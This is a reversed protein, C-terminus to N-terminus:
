PLPAPLLPVAIDHFDIWGAYTKIGEPISVQIAKPLEQKSALACEALHQEGQTYHRRFPLPVGDPNSITFKGAELIEKDSNTLGGKRVFACSLRAGAGSLDPDNWLFTLGGPLPHVGPKAADPIELMGMRDFAQLCYYVRVNAIRGPFGGSQLPADENFTIRTESKVTLAHRAHRPAWPPPQSNTTWGTRALDLGSDAMCEQLQCGHNIMPFRPEVMVEGYLMFTSEDSSGAHAGYRVISETKVSVNMIRARIPGNIEFKEPPAPLERSGATYHLEPYNERLNNSRCLETVAQWYPVGKWDVSGTPPADRRQGGYQRFSLTNGTQRSIEAIIEPLPRDQMALTVTSARLMNLPITNTLPEPKPLPPISAAPPAPQASAYASKLPPLLLDHYEFPYEQPQPPAEDPLIVAVPEVGQLWKFNILLEPPQGAKSSASCNVYALKRGDATIMEATRLRRNVLSLDPFSSSALVVTFGKQAVSDLRAFTFEKGGYVLSAGTKRLDVRVPETPRTILLILKGKITQIETARPDPFRSRLNFLESFGRKSEALYAQHKGFTQGAGTSALLDKGMNDRFESLEMSAGAVLLNTDGKVAILLVAQANSKATPMGNDMPQTAERTIMYQVPEIRVSSAAPTNTGAKPAVDEQGLGHGCLLLASLILIPELKRNNM